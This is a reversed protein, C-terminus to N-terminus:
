SGVLTTESSPNPDRLTYAAPYSALMSEQSAMLPALTSAMLNPNEALITINEASSNKPVEFELTKTDSDQASLKAQKRRRRIVEQAGWLILGGPMILVLTSLSVWQLSRPIGEWRQHNDRPSQIWDHWAM